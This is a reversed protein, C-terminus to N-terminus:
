IDEFDFIKNWEESTIGSILFEREDDTLDPMANQILMGNEWNLLQEPTVDIEMSHEIGSATSIKTILM